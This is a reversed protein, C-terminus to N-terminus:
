RFVQKWHREMSVCAQKVVTALNLEALLVVVSRYYVHLSLAEVIDIPIMVSISFIVRFGAKM